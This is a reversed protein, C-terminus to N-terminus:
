ARAYEDKIGGNKFRAFVVAADDNLLCYHVVLIDIAYGEQVYLHLVAASVLDFIGVGGDEGLLEHTVRYKVELAIECGGNM